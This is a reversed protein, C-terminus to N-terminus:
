QYVLYVAGTTLASSGATLDYTGATVQAPTYSLAGIVGSKELALTGDAYVTLNSGAAVDQACTSVVKGDALVGM